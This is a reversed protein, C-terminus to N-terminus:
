SHGAQFFMEQRVKEGPALVIFDKQEYPGRLLQRLLRLDGPVELYQKGFFSANRRTRERVRPAEEPSTNLFCFHTYNKLEERMAWQADEQGLRDTYERNMLTLPDKEAELWGPTLYYTGPRAEHRRHFVGQGGMLLAICDHVRPVILGGPGAKVGLLARACLGYALGVVKHGAADVQAQIIAPTREPALHLGQDLYVVEVTLGASACTLERAVAQCAVVVQPPRHEM